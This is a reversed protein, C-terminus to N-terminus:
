IMGPPLYRSSRLFGSHLDTVFFFEKSASVAGQRLFYGSNKWSATEKDSPAVNYKCTSPQDKMFGILLFKCHFNKVVINQLFKVM